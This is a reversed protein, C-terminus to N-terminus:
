VFQSSTSPRAHKRTGSRGYLPGAAAHRVPKQENVVTITLKNKQQKIKVTQGRKFGLSELWKDELRIEPIKTEDFKRTRYKTHIKLKRISTM